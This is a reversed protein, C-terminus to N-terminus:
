TTWRTKLSEHFHHQAVYLLADDVDVVKENVRVGM